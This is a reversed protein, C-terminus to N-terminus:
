LRSGRRVLGAGAALRLRTLGTSSPFGEVAMKKKKKKKKIIVLLRICISTTRDM